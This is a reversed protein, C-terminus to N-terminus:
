VGNEWGGGGARGCLGGGGGWNARWAAIIPAMGM